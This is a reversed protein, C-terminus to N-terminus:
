EECGGGIEANVQDRFQTWSTVSKALQELWHASVGAERADRLLAICWRENIYNCRNRLIGRIYFLRALGPDDRDQKLVNAISGIKWFWTNLQDDPSEQYSPSCLASAAAKSIAECALDFGHRRIVKRLSALAADTLRENACGISRAWLSEALTVAESDLDALSLHWAHLLELQERREELVELQGRRKDLEDAAKLSKNSKGLNCAVCSTVLNMLDNGGGSAVPTIHDVHLVVDPAKQGCYQCTFSDRKFVEFRVRKGLSKRQGMVEGEVGAM